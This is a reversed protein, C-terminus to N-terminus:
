ALRPPENAPAVARGDALRFRAPPNLPTHAMTRTPESILPLVAACTACHMSTACIAADCGDSHGSCFADASCHVQAPVDGLTAQGVTVGSASAGVLGALLLIVVIFARAIIM